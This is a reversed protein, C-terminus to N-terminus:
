KYAEVSKSSVIYVLCAKLKFHNGAKRETSSPNTIFVVM